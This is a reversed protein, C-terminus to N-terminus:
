EASRIMLSYIQHLNTGIREKLVSRPNNASRHHVWTSIEGFTYNFMIDGIQEVKEEPIEKGATIRVAKRIYDTPRQLVEAVHPSPKGILSEHWLFQYWGPHDISFDVFQELMSFLDGEAIGERQEKQKAESILRLLIWAAAEWYIEALSDFYNYLNTHACGLQKAIERLTVNKIGNNEEIMRAATDIVMERTVTKKGDM